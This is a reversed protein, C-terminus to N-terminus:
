LDKLKKLVNEATRMIHKKMQIEALEPDRGKIAEFVMKHESFGEEVEISYKLARRRFASDFTIVNQLMQNIFPNRAFTRILTHFRGNEVTLRETDKQKSLNEMLEVQKELETIEKDTIKSAALRATLGELNAKLMLVEEISTDVMESVYTGKRPLTEVLGEHSLIRLAEKIPTTSIGMAAALDREKLHDGPKLDGGIIAERISDLAIDRLSKVDQPNIALKVLTSSKEM